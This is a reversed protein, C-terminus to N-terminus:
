DHNCSLKLKVTFDETADNILLEYQGPYALELRNRVNELGIGHALEKKGKSKKNTIEFYMFAEATTLRILIPADADNLKGHKFANEVFTILLLPMVKCQWSNGKIELSVNLKNDFRLQQIDIFNKIHTIEKELSVNGDKEMGELSYRMMDALKSIAASLEPSHPLSKTYIFSLTNYLFHPNIQNKLSHLRANLIERELIQQNKESVYNKSAYWFAFSIGIFLLNVRFQNWFAVPSLFSNMFGDIGSRQFAMVLILRLCITAFNFAILLSILAIFRRSQLFKPFLFYINLYFLIITPVITSITNTWFTYGPKDAGLFLILVYIIWAAIHIATKKYSMM